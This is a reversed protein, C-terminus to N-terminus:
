DVHKKSIGVYYKKIYMLREYFFYGLEARFINFVPLFLEVQFGYSLNIWDYFLVFKLFFNSLWIYKEKIFFTRLLWSTKIVLFIPVTRSFGFPFSIKRWQWKIPTVTWGLQFCDIVGWFAWDLLNKGLIYGYMKTM